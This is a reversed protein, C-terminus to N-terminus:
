QCYHRHIAEKLTFTHETAETTNSEKCGWPRYGALNRQRHFEGPLFEPTPTWARKWPIKRVWPSFRLRVDGAGASPNKVVVAMQFPKHSYFCWAKNMKAAETDTFHLLCVVNEM